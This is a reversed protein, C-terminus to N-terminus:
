HGDSYRLILLDLDGRWAHLRSLWELTAKEFDQGVLSLRESSDLRRIQRDLADRMTMWGEILDDIGVM